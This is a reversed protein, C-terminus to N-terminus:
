FIDFVLPNIKYVTHSFNGKDNRAQRKVVLPEGQWKFNCLDNIRKNATVRSCGLLSALYEQTPFCTYQRDMFTVLVTFTKWMEGNMERLLGQKIPKFYMRAYIGQEMGDM